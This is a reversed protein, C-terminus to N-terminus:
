YRLPLVMGSRRWENALHSADPVHPTHHDGVHVVLVLHVISAIALLVGVTLPPGEFYIHENKSSDSDGVIIYIYKCNPILLAALRLVTKCQRLFVSAEWTIAVSVTLM